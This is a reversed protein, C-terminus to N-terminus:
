EWENIQTGAGPGTESIGGDLQYGGVDSNPGAQFEGEATAFDPGPFIRRYLLAQTFLSVPIVLLIPLYCLLVALMSVLTNLVTLRFVNGFNAWAARVSLKVAEWGSLNYDVILPYSFVFLMSVFVMALIAFLYGVLLVLILAGGAAEGGNEAAAASAIIGIFFLIGVPIAIVLSLGVMVLTAVLSDIFFDFGKFLMAFTPSENDMMAFFCIFIGCMMPGMLVAMPAAGGVIMGVVCIGLTIWFYQPWLIGWAQGWLQRSSVRDTRFGIESGEGRSM